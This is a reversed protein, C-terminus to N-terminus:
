EFKINVKKLIIESLKEKADDFDYFVCDGFAAVGHYYDTPLRDTLESKNNCCASYQVCVGIGTSTMEISKVHGELIHYSPVDKYVDEHVYFLTDGIECPFVLPYERLYM